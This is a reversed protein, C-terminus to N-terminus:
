KNLLAGIIAYDSNSVYVDNETKSISQYERMVCEGLAGIIDITKQRENLTFLKGIFRQDTTRKIRYYEM